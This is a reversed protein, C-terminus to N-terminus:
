PCPSGNRNYVLITYEAKISSSVSVDQAGPPFPGKPGRKKYGAEIDGYKCQRAKARQITRVSIGLSAAINTQRVGKANLILADHKKNRSVKDMIDLFLM